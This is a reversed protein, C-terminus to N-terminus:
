PVGVEAQQWVHNSTDVVTCQSFCSCIDHDFAKLALMCVNTQLHALKCFWCVLLSSYLDVSGVEELQLLFAKAEQHLESIMASCFAQESIPIGLIVGQM